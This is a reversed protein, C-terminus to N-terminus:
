NIRKRWLILWTGVGVFLVLMYLSLLGISRDQIKISAKKRNDIKSDILPNPRKGEKSRNPLTSENQKNIDETMRPSTPLIGAEKDHHNSNIGGFYQKNKGNTNDVPPMAGIDKMGPLDDVPGKPPLKPISGPTKPPTPIGVPTDDELSPLNDVPGKPPLKPISGPTKPPTPIGVPTDTNDKLPPLDDV